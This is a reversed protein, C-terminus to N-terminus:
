KCLIKSKHVEGCTMVLFKILIKKFVIGCHMCFGEKSYEGCNPCKM